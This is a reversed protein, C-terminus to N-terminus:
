EGFFIARQQEWDRVVDDRTHGPEAVLTRGNFQSVVRRGTGNALGTMADAGEHITAGVPIAYDIPKSM